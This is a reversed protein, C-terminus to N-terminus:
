EAGNILKKKMEEKLKETLDASLSIKIAKTNVNIEEAVKGMFRDLKYEPRAEAILREFEQSVIEDFIAQRREKEITTKRKGHKGINPSLVAKKNAEILQERTAM